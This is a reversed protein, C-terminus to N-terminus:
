LVEKYHLTHTCTNPRHTFLKFFSINYFFLNLFITIIRKSNYLKLLITFLMITFSNKSNFLNKEHFFFNFYYVCSYFESSTLINLYAFPVFSIRQQILVLERHAVLEAVKPMVSQSEAVSVSFYPSFVLSDLDSLNNSCIMGHLHIM